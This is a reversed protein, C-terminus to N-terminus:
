RKRFARCEGPVYTDIAPLWGVSALYDGLGFNIRKISFVLSYDTQNAFLSSFFETRALGGFLPAYALFFSALLATLKPLELCLFVCFVISAIAYGMSIWRFLVALNLNFGIKRLILDVLYLQTPMLLLYGNPKAASNPFDGASVIFRYDDPHFSYDPLFGYGLLVADKGCIRINM